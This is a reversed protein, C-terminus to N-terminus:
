PHAGLTLGSESLCVRGKVTRQGFPRSKSKSRPVVHFSRESSALSSGFGMHSWGKDKSLTARHSSWASVPVDQLVWRLLITLLWAYVGQEYPVDYWNGICIYIYINNHTHKQKTTEWFLQSNMRALLIECDMDVQPGMGSIGDLSSVELVLLRASITYDDLLGLCNWARNFRSCRLWMHIFNLERSGYVEAFSGNNISPRASSSWECKASCGADGGRPHTNLKSELTMVLSCWYIRMHCLFHGQLPHCSRDLISYTFM